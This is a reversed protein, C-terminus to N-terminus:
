GLVPHPVQAFGDAEGVGNAREGAGSGVGEQLDAGVAAEGGEDGVECGVGGDGYRQQAAIAGLLCRGHGREGGQVDLADRDVPGGQVGARAGAAQVVQRGVGELPAPQPGGGGQAGGVRGSEAEGGGVVGQEAGRQGDGSGPVEDEGAGQGAGQVGPQVARGHVARDPQGAGGQHFGGYAGAVLDVCRM